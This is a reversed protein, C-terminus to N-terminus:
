PVGWPATVGDLDRAERAEGAERAQASSVGRERGQTSTTLYAGTLEGRDNIAYVATGLGAADPHEVTEIDAGRRRVFGHTTGDVDVYAGAIQGRNNIGNVATVVAGPVCSTVAHEDGGRRLALWTRWAM